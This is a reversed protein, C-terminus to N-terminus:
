GSEEMSGTGRRDSRHQAQRRLGRGCLDRERPLTRLLASRLALHLRVVGIQFHPDLPQFVLEPLQGALVLFELEAVPLEFVPQALEAGRRRRWAALRRHRLGVHGRSRGRNLGTRWLSLLAIRLLSIRLLPGALLLTIWRGL